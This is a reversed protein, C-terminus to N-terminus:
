DKSFIILPKIEVGFQNFITQNTITDVDGNNSARYFLYNVVYALRRSFIKDGFSYGTFDEPGQSFYNIQFYGNNKQDCSWGKYNDADSASESFYMNPTENSIFKFVIGTQESFLFEQEPVNYKHKRRSSSSHLHRLIVTDGKKLLGLSEQNALAGELTNSLRIGNAIAILKLRVYKMYNAFTQKATARDMEPNWIIESSTRENIFLNNEILLAPNLRNQESNWVATVERYDISDPRANTYALYSALDDDLFRRVLGESTMNKSEDFQKQQEPTLTDRYRSELDSFSPETPTLTETPTPSPSLSQGFILQVTRRLM